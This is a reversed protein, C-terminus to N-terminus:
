GRGVPSRSWSTSRVPRLRPKIPLCIFRGYTAEDIDANGQDIKYSDGPSQWNGHLWEYRSTSGWGTGGDAVFHKVSPLVGGPKCVRSMLWLWRRLSTRRNATAKTFGDGAFIRRCPYPLRSIWHVNTALLEKATVEAIRKILDADRTAGLGINHPFIVSGYVNSHGHVADVGYILPIRLRTEQAAELFDRVMRGWAQPTNPTPNGGGGSLVSGIFYETVAEPTISNKEVQTMQGIKEALSMKGLLADVQAEAATPQSTVSLTM